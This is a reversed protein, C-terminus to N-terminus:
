LHSGQFNYLGLMFDVDSRATPKKIKKRRQFQTEVGYFVLFDLGDFVSQIKKTGLAPNCIHDKSITCGLCLIWM